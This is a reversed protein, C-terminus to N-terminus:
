KVIIRYVMERLTILIAIHDAQEMEKPVEIFYTNELVQKSPKVQQINSITKSEGNLEYQITGFKKLLVYLDSVKLYSLKEDLTFNGVLKFLIQDYNESVSPLMHETGMYCDDIICYTYEYSFTDALEYSNLQLYSKHFLSDEFSVAGTLDYTHVMKKEDNLPELAIDITKNNVDTYQLLAHDVNIDKPLEYTLVYNQYTTTIDEDHYNLGLDYVQDKYEETDHFYRKNILLSFRVPKFKKKKVNTNSRVQYQVVLLKKGEEIKKNYYNNETVYSKLIQVTFESTSFPEKQKYVKHYVGTNLYVILSIIGLLFLICIHITLHNEIYVYKAHRLNKRFNRRLQDTDLELDVEFEENDEATIKLDVIDQEFDFKRIDFGTARIGVTILSLSQLILTILLFDQMLKLTRTDLLSIELTKINTYCYLLVFTVFGYTIINFIYFRVPKKKFSMLGLIVLTLILILVIMVFISSHFLTSTINTGITSINSNMYEGVFRFIRNTKLLLYLIMITLTLHIVKFHKILFAFPKRFLM